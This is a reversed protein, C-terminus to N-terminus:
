VKFSGFFARDEFIESWRRWQHRPLCMSILKNAKERWLLATESFIGCIKQGGDAAPYTVKNKVRDIVPSTLERM